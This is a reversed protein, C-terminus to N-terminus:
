LSQFLDSGDSLRRTWRRRFRSAWDRGDALRELHDLARELTPAVLPLHRRNGAAAFSVFTGVAKLTRQLSTLGYSRLLDEGISAKELLREEVALPPFLSDNLLSSLDYTIPAMRLDQHDIVVIRDGEQILNRVMFDRHCPGFSGRDLEACLGGLFSRFDGAQRDTSFFDKPLLLKEFVPDLERDLRPGDLRPNIDDVAGPALSLMARRHAIAEEYHCEMRKWNGIEAEFLTKPGLDELLVIGSEPDAELIQPVPVGVSELLKTTALFRECSERIRSPYYAILLTELRNELRFYRRISVDGQLPRLEDYRFGSSRLWREVVEIPKSADPSM